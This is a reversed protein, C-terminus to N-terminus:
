CKKDLEELEKIADDQSIGESIFKKEQVEGDLM